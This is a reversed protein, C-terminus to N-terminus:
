VEAMILYIAYADLVSTFSRHLEPALYEGVLTFGGCFGLFYWRLKHKRIGVYQRHWWEDLNKVARIIHTAVRRITQGAVQEVLEHWIMQLVQYLVHEPDLM